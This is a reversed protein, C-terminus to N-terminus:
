NITIIYKSIYILRITKKAKRVAEATVACTNIITANKLGEKECLVKMTETEYLNLKCGFTQFNVNNSNM